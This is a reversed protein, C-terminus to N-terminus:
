KKSTDKVIKLIMGIIAILPLLWIFVPFSFKVKEDVWYGIAVAIILGAFIQAGMGAYQFLFKKNSINKKDDDTM